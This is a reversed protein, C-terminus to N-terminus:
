PICAMGFQRLLIKFDLNGVACDWNSDGAIPSMVVRRSTGRWGDPVGGIIARVSVSADRGRPFEVQSTPTVSTECSPTEGSTSVCWEYGEAGTVTETEAWITNDPRLLLTVTAQCVASPELVLALGYLLKVM